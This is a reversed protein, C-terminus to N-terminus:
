VAAVRMVGNGAVTDIQEVMQPMGSTNSATASAAQQLVEVAERLARVEAVLEANGGGVGPNLMPNYAAPVIQEGKHVVALMDKPVYNTGVDFYAVKGLIGRRYLDLEGETLYDM